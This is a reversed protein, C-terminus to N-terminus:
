ELLIETQQQKQKNKQSLTSHFVLDKLSLGPGFCRDIMYLLLLAAALADHLANHWHRRRRPCFELVKQALASELGLARIIWSLQYSELSLCAKSLAYTDVWPGWSSTSAGLFDPSQSHFPWYSRLLSDEVSAHHAAFLGGKRLSSFLLWQDEFSPFNALHDKKLGHICGAIAGGPGGEGERPRCFGTHVSHIAGGLLTVVGYELIGEQATGEFDIVHLPTTSYLHM